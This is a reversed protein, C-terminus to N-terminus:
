TEKGRIVIARLDNHVRDLTAVTAAAAKGASYVAMAYAIAEHPDLRV